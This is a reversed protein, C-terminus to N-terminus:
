PFTYEFFLKRFKEVGTKEDSSLDIFFSNQWNKTKEAQKNEPIDWAPYVRFGRKGEKGNGTLIGKEGLVSKPFLFFGRNQDNEAAIIYFDVPETISFPETQGSSNRKWLTVFQGTKKPTVKAKRFKVTRENLQFNLGSYAECESDAEIDSLKLDLKEFVSKTIYGPIESM